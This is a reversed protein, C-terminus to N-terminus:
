RCVQRNYFSVCTESRKKEYNLLKTILLIIVRGLCPLSKGTNGPTASSYCCTVLIRYHKIFRYNLLLNFFICCPPIGAPKRICSASRLTSVDAKRTSLEPRLISLDAKLISLDPRLISLDAKLISLDPRLTSQDPKRIAGSPQQTSYVIFNM